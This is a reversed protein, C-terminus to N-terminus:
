RSFETPLERAFSRLRLAAVRDLHDRMAAAASDPDRAAVADVIRRHEVINAQHDAIIEYGPTHAADLQYVLRDILEVLTDNHAATRLAQHWQWDLGTTDQEDGTSESQEQIHMLRALDLPLHLRAASSAAECELLTRTAIIELVNAQSRRKVRYGRHGREILGDHYLLLLAERVPGRSTGFHAALATELLVPEHTFDRSTVMKRIKLYLSEESVTGPEERADSSTVDTTPM